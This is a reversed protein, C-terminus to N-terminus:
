PPFVEVVNGDPDLCRFFLRGNANGQALKSIIRIDLKQANSFCEEIDSVKIYVLARLTLGEPLNANYTGPVLVLGQDFVVEELSQKRISLGLLDRYFRVSKEFSAVPIKAGCAQEAPKEEFIGKLDWDIEEEKQLAQEIASETALKFIVPRGIVFELEDLKIVDTPDAVALVLANGSPKLPVFHYRYIAEQPLIHPFIDLIAEDIKFGNLDVYEMGFQEALAKALTEETILSNVLCVKGFREGTTKIIALVLSLDSPNLDGREVLIEGIKKRKLPQMIRAGHIQYVVNDDELIDCIIVNNSRLEIDVVGTGHNFPNCAPSRCKVPM